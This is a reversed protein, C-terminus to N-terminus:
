AMAGKVTGQAFGDTQDLRVSAAIAGDKATVRVNGRPFTARDLVLDRLDFTADLGAAHHLDQLTLKGSATGAIRQGTLAGAVNLPLGTLTVDRSAQWAPAGGALVQAASVKVTTDAEMVEQGDHAGTLHVEAREGDYTVKTEVDLPRLCHDGNPPLL